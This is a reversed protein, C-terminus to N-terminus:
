TRLRERLLHYIRSWYRPRVMFEFLIRSRFYLWALKDLRRTRADNDEILAMTEAVDSMTLRTEGKRLFTTIQRQFPLPQGFMRRLASWDRDFFTRKEIPFDMNFRRYSIAVRHTDSDQTRHFVDGRIILLDGAELSPTEALEELENQTLTEALDNIMGRAWPEYGDGNRMKRKVAEVPVVSLGSKNKSPKVIPIWFNLYDYVNRHVFKTLHDVHFPFDLEATDFYIGATFPYNEYNLLDGTTEEVAVRIDTLETIQGLLADVKPRIIDHARKSASKAKYGVDLYPATNHDNRLVALDDQSLFSPVVVFGRLELSHLNSRSDLDM